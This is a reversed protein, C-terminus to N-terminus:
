LLQVMGAFLAQAVADEGLTEANLKFTTIAVHGRGYPMEALLSVSKHIWGLTLGAWSHTRFAWPPLGVLVADAMVPAFDMELLPSGPLAAFPGEKKLWSISTAWDGQWATGARPVVAGVPLRHSEQGAAGEGALLLLKAGAQVAEELALTYRRAVLITAPDPATPLGESVAYGLTRAVDALAPDDVVCLSKDGLPVAIAAVEVQNSAILAGMDDLWRASMTVMGPASLGVNVVGGAPKVRGTAEGVQWEIVGDTGEGDVGFARVDIAISEGVRGSWTQPRLAIVCDQNIPTFHSDLGYKVDRQMTLLGNCEWHVDTFETIIYGGIAPHLRMTTIEYHLSRAMHLQAAQAFDAMSGFIGDLGMDRFRETMAHPYVIGEGWEHGTEFWWPDGGKEQITAPDPLGWNGFESLILPLDARREHLFDQAWVWKSQRGAFDAVWEDWGDAHDPIARYQHFDEMDGAVHFNDCCASNDVILRTPDIQKAEHTFDALWRRHEPNRVLDTGWNENILTWAFISPHNWDREVMRRFTEKARRDTAESLHVWNPIETWVLLGLRDAVEYYRPDEIKIHIRLCNLGLAKAKRAQDELYALSPPTYITGPYYGQDLVGRLYIPQGNLYIRGNRSEITRFGCSEQRTHQAQGGVSLTTEVTYLHPTEPSWLHPTADLVARGSGEANLHITAVTQDASDRVVAVLDANEVPPANLFATIEITGDAPRPTLRVRTIHLAPLVDLTVSQWIGGIPGYWSQKGHPVESFPADPFRSRDDDADVVRVVLENEGPQLLATVDFDFPLYGGEHEGVAQGNLWVTAFYDVAGFRLIAVQGALDRDWAFRRRYWATGSALRLDEFQAQWPMPVQATRWTTIASVDAGDTPDIQFDWAGDLSLQNTTKM